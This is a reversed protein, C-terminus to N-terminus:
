WRLALAFACHWTSRLASSGLAKLFRFFPRKSGSGIPSEGEPLRFSAWYPVPTVKSGPVWQVDVNLPDMDVLWQQPKLEGFVFRWPSAFGSARFVLLHADAHTSELFSHLNQVVDELTSMYFSLQPPPPPPPPPPPASFFSSFGVMYIYLSFCM